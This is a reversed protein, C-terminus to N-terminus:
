ATYFQAHILHFLFFIYIYVYFIISYIVDITFVNIISTFVMFLLIRNFFEGVRIRLIYM